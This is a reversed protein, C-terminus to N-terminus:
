KKSSWLLFLRKKFGGNERRKKNQYKEINKFDLKYHESISKTIELIDALENTLDNKSARSVEKSEEILKKKLEKEYRKKSLFSIEYKGGTKEIVEPIKDRILKNYIIKKM